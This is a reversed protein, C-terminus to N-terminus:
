PLAETSVMSTIPETYTGVVVDNNAGIWDVELPSATTSRWMSIGVRGISHTDDYGAAHLVGNIYFEM